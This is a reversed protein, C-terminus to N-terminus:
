KPYYVSSSYGGAAQTGKEFHHYSYTRYVTKTAFTYKGSLVSVSSAKSKQAVNEDDLKGQIYIYNRVSIHDMIRNASSTGKSQIYSGSKIFSNTGQSSTSSIGRFYDASAPSASYAGLGTALIVGGLFLKLKKNM